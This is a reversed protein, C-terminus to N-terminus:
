NILSYGCLVSFSRSIRLAFDTSCHLLRMCLQTRFKEFNLNIRDIILTMTMFRWLESFTTKIIHMSRYTPLLAVGYNRKLWAKEGM